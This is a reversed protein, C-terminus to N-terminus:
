ARGSNLEVQATESVFMRFVGEDERVGSAFYVRFVRFYVRICGLICGSCRRM